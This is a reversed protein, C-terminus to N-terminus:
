NPNLSLKTLQGITNRQYFILSDLYSHISKPDLEIIKTHHQARMLQFATNTHKKLYNELNDLYTEFAASRIEICELLANRAHSSDNQLCETFVQIEDNLQLLQPISHSIKSKLFQSTCNDLDILLSTDFIRENEHPTSPLLQSQPSPLNEQSIPFGFLSYAKLCDYSMPQVQHGRPNCCLLAGEFAYEM